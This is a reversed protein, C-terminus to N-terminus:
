AILRPNSNRITPLTYLHRHPHGALASRPEHRSLSRYCSSPHIPQLRSVLSGIYQRAFPLRLLSLVAPHPPRLLLPRFNLLLEPRPIPRSASSWAALDSPLRAPGVGSAYHDAASTTSLRHGAHEDGHCSNLTPRTAARQAAEEGPPRSLVERLDEARDCLVGRPGSLGDGAAPRGPLRE